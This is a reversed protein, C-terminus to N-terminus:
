PTLFHAKALLKVLRVPHVIHDAEVTLIGLVLNM